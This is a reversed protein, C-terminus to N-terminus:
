SFLKKIKECFKEFWNTQSQAKPRQQMEFGGLHLIDASEPKTFESSVNDAIIDNEGLSDYTNQLDNIVSSETAVIVSKAAIQSNYSSIMVGSYIAFAVMIAVIISYCSIAIKARANLKARTATQSSAVIETDHRMTPIFTKSAVIEDSAKYAAPSFYQKEVEFAPETKAVIETDLSSGYEIPQFDPTFLSISERTKTAIEKETM